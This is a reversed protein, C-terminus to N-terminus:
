GDRLGLVACATANAVVLGVFPWVAPSIPSEHFLSAAVLGWVLAAGVKAWFRVLWSDRVTGVILSTGLALMVIGYIWSAVVSTMVFYAPLRQFYAPWFLIILGWGILGVANAVAIAVENRQKTALAFRLVRGRVAQM